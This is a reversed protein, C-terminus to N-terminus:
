FDDLRNIYEQRSQDLRAQAQTQENRIFAIMGTVVPLLALLTLALPWTGPNASFVAIQTQIALASSLGLSILTFFQMQAQEGTAASVLNALDVIGRVFLLSANMATRIGGEAAKAHAKTKEIEQKLEDLEAQAQATSGQWIVAIRGPNRLSM